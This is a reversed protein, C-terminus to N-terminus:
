HLGVSLEFRLREICAKCITVYEDEPSLFSVVAEPPDPTDDLSKGCVLCYSEEDTVYVKQYNDFGFVERKM